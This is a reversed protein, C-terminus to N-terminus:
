NQIKITEKLQIGFFLFKEKGAQKMIDKINDKM